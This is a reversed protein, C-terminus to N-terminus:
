MICASGDDGPENGRDDSFNLAEFLIQECVMTDGNGTSCVIHPLLFHCREKSSQVLLLLLVEGSGVKGSDELVLGHRVAEGEEQLGWTGVGPL